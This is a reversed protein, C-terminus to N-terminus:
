QQATRQAVASASESRFRAILMPLLTPIFCSAIWERAKPVNPRGIVWVAFWASPTTSRMSASAFRSRFRPRTRQCGTRLIELGELLTIALDALEGDTDLITGPVDHL